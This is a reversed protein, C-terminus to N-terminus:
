LRRRLFQINRRYPFLNAPFPAGDPFLGSQNYSQTQQPYSTHMLGAGLHLLVTPSLTDDLNVRITQSLIDQAVRSNWPATIGNYLPSYTRTASYYAALKMKSSINHDIKLSPITTHRFDSYGPALYNSLGPTNPEPFMSQILAATPDIRSAPVINNPFPTRVTAGNVVRSSAPDFVEDLCVPQGAPDPGGCPFVFTPFLAASFDGQKYADTPM